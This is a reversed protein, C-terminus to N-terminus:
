AVKTKRKRRWGLLGLGGLASAFLPLTAPLPVANVEYEVFFGTVPDAGTSGTSIGNSADAWQGFAIGSTLAGINMYVNSPFNNPEIGGWNTYSFSQGSDPGVAWQWNNSSDSEGGLWAGDFSGSPSSILSALFTNEAASTVTALHGAISLHSMGAAATSANSWSIGINSVFEYYNGSGLQVPVARAPASVAFMDASVFIAVASAYLLASRRINRM